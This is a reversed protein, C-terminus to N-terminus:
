HYLSLSILCVSLTCNKCVKEDSFKAWFRSVAREHRDQPLLPYNKWVEDIYELIVLSECIPKDNHVLVPVKKHVPNHKLLTPSKNKLNETIFEYEVVKLKLAWQVRGTFRSKPTGILKVEAM